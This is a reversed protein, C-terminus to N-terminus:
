KQLQFALEGLRVLHIFPKKKKAKKKKRNQKEEEIQKSTGCRVFSCLDCSQVVLQLLAIRCIALRSACVVNFCMYGISILM